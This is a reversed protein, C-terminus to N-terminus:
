IEKFRKRNHHKYEESDMLSPDKEKKMEKNHDRWCSFVISVFLLPFVM